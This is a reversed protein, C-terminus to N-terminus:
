PSPSSIAPALSYDDPHHRTFFDKAESLASLSSRTRRTRPQAQAQDLPMTTIETPLPLPFVPADHQPLAPTLALERTPLRAPLTRRSLHLDRGTDAATRARGWPQGWDRQRTHGWIHGGHGSGLRRRGNVEAPAARSAKPPMPLSMSSPSPQTPSSSPFALALTALLKSTHQADHVRDDLTSWVM